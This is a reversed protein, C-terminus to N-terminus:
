GIYSRARLVGGDINPRERWQLQRGPTRSLDDWLHDILQDETGGGYVYSVYPNGSDSHPGKLGDSVAFKQGIRDHLEVLTM